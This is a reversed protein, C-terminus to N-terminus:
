IKTMRLMEKIEINDLIKFLNSGSLSKNVVHYLIARAKKSKVEEERVLGVEVLRYLRRKISMRDLNVVNELDKAKYPKEKLAKLIAINRSSALLKYVAITKTIENVM